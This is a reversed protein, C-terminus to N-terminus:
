RVFTCSHRNNISVNQMWINPPYFCSRLLLWKRVSQGLQTFEFILIENFFPRYFNKGSCYHKWKKVILLLSMMKISVGDLKPSKLAMKEGPSRLLILVFCAMTKQKFDIAPFWYSHDFSGIERRNRRRLIVDIFAINSNVFFPFIQDMSSLFRVVNPRLILYKWFEVEYRSVTSQNLAFLKDVYTKFTLEWSSIWLM